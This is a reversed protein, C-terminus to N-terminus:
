VMLDSSADGRLTAARSETKAGPIYAGYIESTEIANKADSRTAYSELALVLGIAGLTKRVM